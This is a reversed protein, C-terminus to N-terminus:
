SKKTFCWADEKNIKIQTLPFTSGPKLKLTKILKPSHIYVITKAKNSRIKKTGEASSVFAIQNGATLVNVKQDTNLTSGYIAIYSKNIKAIPDTFLASFGRTFEFEKWEVAQKKPM